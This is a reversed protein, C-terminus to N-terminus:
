SIWIKPAFYGLGRFGMKYICLTLISFNRYIWFYGIPDVHFKFRFKPGGVEVVDHAMAWLLWWFLNLIAVAAMNFIKSVNYNKWIYGISIKWLIQHTNALLSHTTSIHGFYLDSTYIIVAMIYKWNQAQFYKDFLVQQWSDDKKRKLKREPDIKQGQFKEASRSNLGTLQWDVGSNSQNVTQTWSVM